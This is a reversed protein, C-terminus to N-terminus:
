FVEFDDNKRAQNFLDEQMGGILEVKRKNLIIDRIRQKEFELPSVTEKIKFDKFSVMYVFSSDRFELNRNNKLFEEQNYTKGPVQKLLDNFYLWNENDLFFDSASKECLDALRNKDEPDNSELLKKVQRIVRSELPLRVYQYRVINDKLLFNQQNSDYYTRIDEDTVVTDLKQRVLETEYAYITLSNKYDELQRSFDLQMDTLNREAQRILLQKRIWNDIFNRAIVMSDRAPTGPAVVGQMDSEYLYEDHVRAVARESKQRLFSTCSATVILTLILLRNM